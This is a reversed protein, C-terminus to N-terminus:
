TTLLIQGATGMGSHALMIACGEPHAKMASQIFPQNGVGLPWRGKLSASKRWLESALRIQKMQFSLGFHQPTANIRLTCHMLQTTPDHTGAVFFLACMAPLQRMGGHAHGAGVPNAQAQARKPCDLDKYSPAMEGGGPMHLRMGPARPRSSAITALWGHPGAVSASGLREGSVDM